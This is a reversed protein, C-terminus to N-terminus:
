PQHGIQKTARGETAAPRVAENPEFLGSSSDGILKHEIAMKHLVYKESRLSDRDVFLCFGYACAYLAVIVILTALLAIVAWDPAKAFLALVTAGVLMAILWALPKLVDSRSLTANMQERLLSALQLFDAM